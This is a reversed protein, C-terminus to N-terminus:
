RSQAGLQLELGAVPWRGVASEWEDLHFNSDSEQQAASDWDRGEASCGTAGFEKGGEADPFVSPEGFESDLSARNWYECSVSPHSISLKPGSTTYGGAELSLSM